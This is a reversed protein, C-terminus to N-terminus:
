SEREPVSDWALLRPILPYFLGLRVPLDGGPLGRRLRAYTELQDRYKAMEAEAFSDDSRSGQGTTKFDIIWVCSQGTSLPETGALFTRDVRFSRAAAAFATLGSESAAGTHRSLVWLGTPDGLTLTLARLARLAERAAVAPPLGEGRLSTELRQQWGPLEALLADAATDTLRAALLQLYRHVVNGFARVAFSGEPREFSPTRRLAAAPPYDLRRAYATVFRELPDFSFPLRQLVPASAVTEAAEAAEAALAVEGGYATDFEQGPLSDEDPAQSQNPQAQEMDAFHGEAAPWCAYLLTGPLPPALDGGSTRTVAAFLHLEERARTAAVYFLRKEEARDRRNRVSKLWDNLKDSDDGKGWIPALLISAEQDPSVDDIELWNLLVAGSRRTKRHLGPLLVVDWELGKAKHITTLEVQIDSGTRPEAYLAKLKSAIESLDLRDGEHEMERLVALYRRVNGRQEQTLPADGGLSLWTRELQVSLPARGLTAVSTELVPWAREMLRQGQPSLRSRRTAVLSAITQQTDCDPGEGTLALLDAQGLGCWPARLVALWAIRDAPHLLARTLALADLVEPREDLPELDIGRFAIEPRGNHAKFEEVIAGLHGRARALVAIRWPRTRGEPLPKALRREVIRRIERAEQAAYDEAEPGLVYPHWVIGNPPTGLSEPRVATARVFPVDVAQGGQLAPDNPPPFIPGSEGTGGFTDNFGEVLAAQSRFNATLRLPTLPVDGIRGERLTRLFREVRAARFLYISQKPDGVLFLTQSHGDWTQTLGEILAYQSTSTDQMEDVLLHRLRGGAPLMLGGSEEGQGLAAHASLSFESFDCVGRQAFLNKLEALAHRLVHFLAKAVQWQEQPYVPSPLDLVGALAARLSDNQVSAIFLKFEDLEPKPPKFGFTSVALSSRWQRDKDKPKLVLGVLARWHDLHEAAVGPPMHKDHCITVPSPADNYGPLRAHRQAFRTLHELVEPPTANQARRLGGCVIANLTEELRPRVVDELYADDLEGSTLPVLEGWQERTHLMGAILRECDAISGDRHLLVTRLADNLRPSGGGLQLLTQRAALLYLPSASEVPQMMGGGSLMPLSHALDVCVSLISRINLRNPQALVGWGLQASRELAAEALTRTQRAFDGDNPLPASAHASQLEELVRRRMEATAKRTFTVALVEEPSEVSEDTLLSLFRQVLLGTKGSGAPAEVIFSRRVDLADAREAADPPPSPTTQPVPSPFAFIEAM